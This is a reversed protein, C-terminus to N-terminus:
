GAAVRERKLAAIFDANPCFAEYGATAGRALWAECARKDRCMTCRRAANAAREFTWLNAADALPVGQRELMRPMLLPRQERMATRWMAWLAHGLIAAFAVFVAGTLVTAVADM